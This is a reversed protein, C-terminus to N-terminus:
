EAAQQQEGMERMEDAYGFHDIYWALRHMLEPTRPHPTDETRTKYDRSEDLRKKIAEEADDFDGIDLEEYISRLKAEPDRVLGEYNLEILNGEPILDRDEAYCQYIEEFRDMVSDELWTEAAKAHRKGAMEAISHWTRITSRFVKRPDRAIHIFKADPFVQLITRIRATHQPTKLVLRRDGGAGYTVSKLFHVWTDIWEARADVDLNRLSIYNLDTPGHGPFFMWCYDSHGLLHVLAFEEEQARDLSLVMDDMPRKKPLFFSLFPKIVPESILFHSPVFCQYGSPSALNPDSALLEHLFTTGSRWHGLVFLPAHKIETDEIKERFLLDHFFKIISTFATTVTIAIVAPIHRWGMLRWNKGLIELWRKLTFGFAFRPAFHPKVAARRGANSRSTEIM